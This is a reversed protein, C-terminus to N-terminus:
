AAGLLNRLQQRADRAREHAQRVLGRAPAPLREEIPQVSAELRGLAQEVAEDVEKARRGLEGRVADLSGPLTGIASTICSRRDALTKALEQRRVQARQVGLVGLGVVVYAADRATKTIQDTLPM